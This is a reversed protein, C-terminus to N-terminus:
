AKVPGLAEGGMSSRINKFRLSFLQQVQIIASFHLTRKSKKLEGTFTHSPHKDNLHFAEFSVWLLREGTVKIGSIQLVRLTHAM